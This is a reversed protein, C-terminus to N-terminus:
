KIFNFNTVNRQGSNCPNGSNWLGSYWPEVTSKFNKDWDIELKCLRGKINAM